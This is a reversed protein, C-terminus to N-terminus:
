VSSMTGSTTSSAIRFAGSHFDACMREGRLALTGIHPHLCLFELVREFETIFAYGLEQGGQQAYFNAGETLERDAEPSVSPIM